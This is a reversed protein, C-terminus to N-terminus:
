SDPTEPLPRRLMLTSLSAGEPSILLSVAEREISGCVERWVDFRCAFREQVSQILYLLARTRVPM